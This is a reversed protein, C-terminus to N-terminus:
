AHGEHPYMEGSARKILAAVASSGNRSSLSALASATLERERNQDRSRISRYVGMVLYLLTMGGHSYVDHRPGVYVRSLFDLSVGEPSDRAWNELCQWLYLCRRHVRIKGDALMAQTQKIAWEIQDRTNDAGPLCYLPVGGSRLNSQWSTQGSEAAVGAPDGFHVHGRRVGAGASLYGRAVELSEASAIRWSAQQWTREDDIWIIPDPTTPDSQILAYQNCLLSAGSGFDWSGVISWTSRAEARLPKWDPHDEHYEVVERRVFFIRGKRIAQVKCGHEQAFSEEDLKGGNQVLQAAAWDDDRTPDTRWDLTVIQESPLTELLGAFKNGPGNPTSCAITVDAVTDISRWVHDQKSPPDVHAFEDLFLVTSRGGRGVGKNTSEGVLVSGNTAELRCKTDEKLEARLWTPQRDNCFRIKGFLSDVTKNDVLPEKRSVLTAKFNDEFRFKHWIWHICLWSIGLKRGKNIVGVQGKQLRDSLWELAEEQRPWLSFPVIRREPSAEHPNFLWAWNSIWHAIDRSCLEVEARVLASRSDPNSEREIRALRMARRAVEERWADPKVIM